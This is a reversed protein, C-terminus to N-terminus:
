STSSPRSMGGAVPAQVTTTRIRYLSTSATIYLDRGDDGGFCVNSVVEPVPIKLLLEAAPSSGMTEELLHETARQDLGTLAMRHTVPDRGLDALTATLDRGAETDRYCCCILM